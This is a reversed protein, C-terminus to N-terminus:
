GGAAPPDTRAAAARLRSQYLFALVLMLIGLGMASIVRFVMDVNTLDVLFVKIVTIGILALGEWRSAASNARIGLVILAGGYIAWAISLAVSGSQDANHPQLLEGARNEPEDGPPLDVFRKM